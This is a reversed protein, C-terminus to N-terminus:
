DAGLDLCRVEGDNRVFVHRNAFAPPTWAVKRTGKGDAAMDPEIIKTRGIEEYGEPSLRAIILFGDENFIFDRDGHPYIFASYWKKRKQPEANTPKMTEWVAEGSDAKMCLFEGFTSVGYLHDGRFLVSSMVTNFGLSEPTRRGNGGDSHAWLTKASQGDEGVEVMLAGCFQGSVVVRRGEVVPPTISMGLRVPFDVSWYVAGDVPNLGSLNEPTWILLQRTGAIERIVPACYGAEQVSLAKWVEAGKKKDFAAVAQNEGGVLCILRDGDVLPAAAFGWVPVKAGYAEVLNRSWVLRGTAAELCLLEGMTGLTYVRDGDVTPTARPGSEYGIRLYPAQYEHKWILAGTKEDLCLVRDIGDKLNRRVGGLPPAPPLQGSSTVRDMLFVRGGAVSPGGYGMGIPVSWRVPLGTEPFREVLGEELISNDLRPGL